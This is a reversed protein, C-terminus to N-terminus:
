LAVRVALRCPAGLALVGSFARVHGHVDASPRPYRETTQRPSVNPTPSPMDVEPDM